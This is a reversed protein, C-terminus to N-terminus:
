TTILESVRIADAPTEDDRIYVNSTRHVPPQLNKYKATQAVGLADWERAPWLVVNVRKCARRLQM